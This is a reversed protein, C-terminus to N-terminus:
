PKLLASFLRHECDADSCKECNWQWAPNGSGTRTLPLGSHHAIAQLACDTRAQGTGYVVTYYIAHEDLVHRLRADFTGGALAGDRQLKDAVWPLDLGTVLTLDYSRHHEWALLAFSSDPLCPDGTIAALIAAMLPPADAIHIGSATTSQELALRLAQTLWTKGTGPAGLIAIKM